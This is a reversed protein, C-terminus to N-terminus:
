GAERNWAAEVLAAGAATYPREVHRTHFRTRAEDLLRRAIGQRRWSRATWIHGVAEYTGDKDRDYLIVFGALYGHYQWSNDENGGGFAEAPALMLLWIGADGPTFDWGAERKYVRAARDLPSGQWCGSDGGQYQPNTWHSLSIM